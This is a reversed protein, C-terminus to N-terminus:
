TNQESFIVASVKGAVSKLVSVRIIRGKKKKEKGKYLPVIVTTRWDELVVRSDFAM